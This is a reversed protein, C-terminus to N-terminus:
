AFDVTGWGTQTSAAKLGGGKAIIAAVIGDIKGQSKGKHLYINENKDFVAVCNRLMWRMVPHQFMECNGATIEKELERTPESMNEVSQRYPDLFNADYMNSRLLGQVIGGHAKYPDYSCKQVNYNSFIENLDDVMQVDDLIDGDFLTILGQQYWLRYDVKDQNEIMKQEPMWFFPLYAPVGWPTEPFELVCANIDVHSALDLGAYCPYNKLAEKAENFWQLNNNGVMRTCRMFKEDQIWVTPADVWINLNKTKFNVEFRGGKNIADTFESYLRDTIVATGLNPNAKVWTKPDKWDDTEDLTFILVFTDSQTSIGSLVDLCFKRYAYCPYNKNFGATTIIFGLPQERSVTASKLSDFVDNEKWEHYEDMVYASPNIGDLGMSDRGLPEMKSGTSLVSVNSRVIESLKELAPEKQVMSKAQNFCIRAQDKKTAAFYVEGEPEGDAYFMYLAVAAAFTTKGNKKAIEHYAYNFRRDGNARKWGFLCHVSFAQWPELIFKKGAWKKGKTHKLMEIFKIARNAAKIDFHLQMEPANELDNIHRLVALKVTQAVAINNHQVDYIFKEAKNM